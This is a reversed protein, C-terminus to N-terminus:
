KCQLFGWSLAFDLPSSSAQTVSDGQAGVESEENLLSCLPSCVGWPGQTPLYFFTEHAAQSRALLLYWPHASRSHPTSLVVVWPWSPINWRQPPSPAPARPVFFFNYSTLSMSLRESTSFFFSFPSFLSSFSLIKARHRKEPTFCCLRVCCWGARVSLSLPGSSQPHRFFGGRFVVSRKRRMGRKRSGVIKLKHTKEYQGKTTRIEKETRGERWYNLLYVGQSVM